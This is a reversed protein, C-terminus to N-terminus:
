VPMGAARAMQMTAAEEQSTRESWKLILGFPLESIVGYRTVGYYACYWRSLYFLAKHALGRARRELRGAVRPIPPTTKSITPKM